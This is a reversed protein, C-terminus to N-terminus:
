QIKNRMKGYLRTAKQENDIAIQLYLNEPSAVAEVVIKKNEMFIPQVMKVNTGAKFSKANAPNASLIIPALLRHFVSRSFYPM